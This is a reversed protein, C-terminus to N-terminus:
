IHKTTIQSNIKFIIGIHSGCPKWLIRNDQFQAKINIYNAMSVYNQARHRLKSM